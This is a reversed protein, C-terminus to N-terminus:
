QGPRHAQWPEEIAAPRPHLCRAADPLKPPSVKGYLSGAFDNLGYQEAIRGLVYWDYDGPKSRFEM